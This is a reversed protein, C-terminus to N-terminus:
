TASAGRRRWLLAMSLAGLAGVAALIAGARLVGDDGEVIRFRFAENQHDGDLATFSYAVVYDGPEDIAEIPLRLVRGDQVADGETGVAGSPGSVELTAGPLIQDLFTLVIEDVSGIVEEGPGPTASQVETHAAVPSSALVVTLAVVTM